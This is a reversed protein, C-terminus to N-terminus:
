VIKKQSSEIGDQKERRVTMKLALSVASLFWFIRVGSTLDLTYEVQGFIVVYGLFCCLLMLDYPNRDRLWGRFSTVVYYLTFYCLGLFGLLGTEAALHFYNNHAHNLAETDTPLRYQSRYFDHWRGLGIGCVPHDEVMHICSIWGSFRNAHERGEVTEGISLFRARLGPKAALVGASVAFFVLVVAIVQKKRKFYAAALAPLMLITNLWSGRSQNCFLAVWIAAFDLAAAKKLLPPFGEDLLFIVCLPLMMCIISAIGLQSGGLGWGRDNNGLKLVVQVLTLLCDVSFLVTYATLMKWLMEKKRIFSVVPLFVVYRWIWMQLFEHIGKALSGGFLVSPLTTLVFILYARVYGKIEPELVIDRRCRHWLVLGLLLIIGNMVEGAAMSIRTLCVMLTAAAALMRVLKIQTKEEIQKGM